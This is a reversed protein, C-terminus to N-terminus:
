MKTLKRYLEIYDESLVFNGDYWDEFNGSFLYVIIRGIIFISLFFDKRRLEKEQIDGQEDFKSVGSLCANAKKLFQLM